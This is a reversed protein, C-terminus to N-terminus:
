SGKTLYCASLSATERGRTVDSLTASSLWVSVQLFSCVFFLMSNKFYGKEQKLESKSWYAFKLAEPSGIAGRGEAWEQNGVKVCVSVRVEKPYRIEPEIYTCTYAYNNQLYVSNRKMVGLRDDIHGNLNLYEQCELGKYMFQKETHRPGHHYFGILFM